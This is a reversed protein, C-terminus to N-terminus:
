TIIGSSSLINTFTCRHSGQSSVLPDVRKCLPLDSRSGFASRNALSRTIDFDYSFFFSRSSALLLRTSHLLKPTLTHAVTDKTEEVAKEVTKGALEGVATTDSSSAEETQPRLEPVELKDDKADKSPEPTISRISTNSSMGLSRQSDAVWGRKSFWKEAFRGYVGKKKIVDETISPGGKAVSKGTSSDVSKISADDRIDDDGVASADDDDSYEESDRRDSAAQQLRARRLVASAEAQSALPIISIDSICYIPSREITAVQERRTIAIL